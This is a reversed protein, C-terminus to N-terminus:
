KITIYVKPESFIDIADDFEDIKNELNIRRQELALTKMYVPLRQYSLELKERIM